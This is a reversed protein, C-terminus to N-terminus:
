DRLFDVALQNFQEAGEFNPVHGANDLIELRSGPLIRHMEQGCRM